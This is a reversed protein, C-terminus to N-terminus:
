GNNEQELSVALSWRHSEGSPIRKCTQASLADDLSDCPATTPEIGANFYPATEAGSWGGYNLWLGLYPIEAPDFSLRLSEQNEADAIEIWGEKLPETFLKAAFRAETEPVKSLDLPNGEKRPAFPWHFTAGEEFVDAPLGTKCFLQTKAPLRIAMGPEIAILPHAAWLYPLSSKGRNSLTYRMALPGRGAALELTREFRFPLNEDEVALTLTASDEPGDTPAIVQWPRCWLEGHDTLTNEGWPSNEVTCPDITPFIEDWGGSDYECVYSGGVCPTRMPLDPNKWLWERGTLLSHISVIKGGLEPVIVVRMADNSLAFAQWSEFRTTELRPKM